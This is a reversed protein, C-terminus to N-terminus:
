SDHPTGSWPELSRPSYQYLRWVSPQLDRVLTALRPLDDVNVSSVVTALKLKVTKQSAVWWAAESTSRFNAEAGRMAHHIEATYGDLSIGIVDFPLENNM